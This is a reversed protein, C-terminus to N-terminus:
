RRAPGTSFNLHLPTLPFCGRAAQVSQITGSFAAATIQDLMAKVLTAPCALLATAAALLAAALRRLNIATASLFAQIRMNHLARRVARVLWQWTKAKGHFGKVRIHHSVSRALLDVWVVVLTEGARIQRLLRVLM